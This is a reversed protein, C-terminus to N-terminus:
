VLVFSLLFLVLFRVGAGGNMISIVGVIIAIGDIISLVFLM